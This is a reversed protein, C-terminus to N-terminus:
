WREGRFPRGRDFGASRVNTAAHNRAHLVGTRATDGAASDRPILWTSLTASSRSAVPKADVEIPLYSFVPAVLVSRQHTPKHISVVVLDREVVSISCVSPKRAFDISSCVAFSGTQCMGRAPAQSLQPKAKKSPRRVGCLREIRRGIPALMRAGRRKYCARSAAQSQDSQFGRTLTKWRFRNREGSSKSSRAM